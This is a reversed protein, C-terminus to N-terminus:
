FSKKPSVLKASLQFFPRESNEAVIQALTTKGTGPPGWFIMSPILDKELAKKIIGNEGTLHPQALYDALVKPRMREALPQNM